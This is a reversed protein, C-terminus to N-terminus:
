KLEKGVLIEANEKTFRGIYKPMYIIPYPNQYHKEIFDEAEEKSTFYHHWPALYIARQTDVKWINYLKGKM